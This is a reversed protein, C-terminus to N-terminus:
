SWWLTFSLHLSYHNHTSMPWSQGFWMLGIHEQEDMKTRIEHKNGNVSWTQCEKYYCHELARNPENFHSSISYFPSRKSKGISHGNGQFPSLRNWKYHM